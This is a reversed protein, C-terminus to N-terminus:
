ERRIRATGNSHEVGGSPTSGGQQVVDGLQKVIGSMVTDRVRDGLPHPEPQLKGWPTRTPRILGDVAANMVSIRRFSWIMLWLHM